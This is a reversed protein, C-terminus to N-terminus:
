VFFDDEDYYSELLEMMGPYNKLIDFIIKNKYNIDPSKHISTPFMGIYNNSEMFLKINSTLVIIKKPSIVYFYHNINGMKGEYIEFCKSTIIFEENNKTEWICTTSSGMIFSFEWRIYSFIKNNSKISNYDTKLIEKINNLWVESYTNLKYKKMFDNLMKRTNDDFNDKVYQEKRSKDRYMMIYLFKRLTNLDKRKIEIYNNSNVIANIIVSCKGELKKLEDEVETVDNTNTNKYLDQVGYKRTTKCEEM